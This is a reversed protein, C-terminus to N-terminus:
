VNPGEPHRHIFEDRVAVGGLARHRAIEIHNTSSVTLHCDDTQHLHQLFSPPQWAGLATRLMHVLQHASAPLMRRLPPDGELTQDLLQGGHLLLELGYVVNLGGVVRPEPLSASEAQRSPVLRLRCCQGWILM